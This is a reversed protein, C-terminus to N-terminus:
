RLYNLQRNVDNMGRNIFVIEVIANFKLRKGPTTRGRKGWWWLRNSLNKCNIGM